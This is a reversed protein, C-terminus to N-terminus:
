SLHPIQFLEAGGEATLSVVVSALERELYISGPVPFIGLREGVHPSM